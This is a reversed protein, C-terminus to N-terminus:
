RRPPMPATGAVAQPRDCALAPLMRDFDGYHTIMRPAPAFDQSGLDGHAHPARIDFGAHGTLTAFLSLASVPLARHAQLAQLRAPQAQRLGPSLWVLMPVRYNVLSAFGHGGRGCAGDFLTEGHDAVYTLSALAPGPTAPLAATGAASSDHAPMGPAVGALQGIAQALVWDTYLVSNDYANILREKQTNNWIDPKDAPALTPTFRQYAPPYRHPYHLHSGLMHLVILQRPEARALVQQLAGLLAGDHAGAARYDAANLYHQEDAEAALVSIPTEHGGALGQTSLWYTRYGAQRFATILSPEVLPALMAQPARRTLMLTVAERTASAASVADNFLLLDDRASLLPTTPRAAGFLGWRDPRAAEGIVLVHVQRPATSAAPSAGPQPQGASASPAEQTAPRARHTIGPAQSSWWTVGFDFGATETHHTALAAQDVQFRQWRLPLGWPYTEALKALLGEDPFPPAHRVYDPRAAPDTNNAGQGDIVAWLAAMAAGALLVWHRSRHQWRWDTRWWQWAAWAAAAWLALTALLAPLLWPGAWSLVEDAHTDRIVGYLHPGSPMGFSHIYFAELPALAAAPALWLLQWRLRPLLAFALASVGLTAWLPFGAQWWAERPAANGSPQLADALQLLSPSLTLALLVAAVLGPPLGHHAHAPPVSRDLTVHRASIVSTFCGAL